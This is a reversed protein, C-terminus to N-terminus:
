YGRYISTAEREYLLKIALFLFPITLFIYFVYKTGTWGFDLKNQYTENTIGSSNASPSFTSSKLMPYLNGGIIRISLLFLIAITIILILTNSATNFIDM